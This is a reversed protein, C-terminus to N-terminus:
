NTKRKRYFALYGVVSTSISLIVLFIVLASDKNDNKIVLFSKSSPNRGIFDNIDTSKYRLIIHDYKAMALQINTAEEDESAVTNIVTSQQTENLYSYKAKLESWPAVLQESVDTWNNNESYSCATSVGDLFDTAFTDVSYFNITLGILYARKPNKTSSTSIELKSISSPNDLSITGGDSPSITSTKVTATDDLGSYLKIDMSVTDTGFAATYFTISNVNINSYSSTDFFLSLQGSESATGFKLGYGKKGLYVKSFSTDVFKDFYIYNKGPIFNYDNWNKATIQTTSDGTGSGCPFMIQASADASEDKLITVSCTATKTGSTATLTATVEDRIKPATLTVETGSISSLQVSPNSVTWTVSESASITASEGPNLTISSSSLVIDDTVTVTCKASADGATVTITASGSTGTPTITISKTDDSVSYKIVSESDEVKWTINDQNSTATITKSESTSNKSLTIKKSSLYVYDASSSDGNIADANPNASKKESNTGWILDAWEPFDVFPNRNKQFNNYILNNRHIEFEDVPDLRNWELLDELIGYKGPETLSSGKEASSYVDDNTLELFPDTNTPESGDYCNYMACMYFLARAIDGKQSDIPEFVGSKCSTIESHISAGRLNGETARSSDGKSQINNEDVYGFLYNNHLASNVPGDAAMLHHVDTGAPGKGYDTKFGYSKPWIHERNIYGNSKDGSKTDHADWIRIIRNESSQDRYLARVYPNDGTINSVSTGYTYSSLTNDAEDYTAKSDEAPSLKWDRDTIEYVKWVTDYDYYQFNERLIPKLNKLLNTGYLEDSALSTLSSYYSRIDSDKLDSLDITTPLKSSTLAAADVSIAENISCFSASSFLLSSLLLLLLGSKQKIKMFLSLFPRLFSAM